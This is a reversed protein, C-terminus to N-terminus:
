FYNVFLYDQSINSFSLFRPFRFSNKKEALYLPEFLVIKKKQTLYFQFSMSLFGKINKKNQKIHKKELLINMM